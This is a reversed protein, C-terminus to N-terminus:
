LKEKLEIWNGEFDRIFINDWGKPNHFVRTDFDYQKLFKKRSPVFLAIHNLGFRVFNNRHEKVDMAFQHVELVINDKKYRYCAAGCNVGFLTKTLEPSLWSEWVKKFGLITVWFDEFKRPDNTIWGIHDLKIM